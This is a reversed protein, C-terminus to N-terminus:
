ASDWMAHQQVQESPVMTVQQALMCSRSATIIMTLALCWERQQAAQSHGQEHDQTLQQCSLGPAWCERRGETIAPVM